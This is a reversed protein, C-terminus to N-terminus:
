QILEADPFANSWGFWFARHAPLRALPNALDNTITDERITWSKGQIDIATQQQFDWHTFEHDGRNYARNAGSPDTLILTNVGNIVLNACTHKELYDVAVAVPEPKRHAPAIMFSLVEAKNKSIRQDFSPVTFMVKDTAFYDHYAVGEGYNRRHGTKLSLVTTRPHRKKWAGWTTTVVARRKLAIGKGVLPGLVPKGQLTNWM